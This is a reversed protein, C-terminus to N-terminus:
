GDTIVVEGFRSMFPKKAVPNRKSFLLLSYTRVKLIKACTRNPKLKVLNAMYLLRPQVM